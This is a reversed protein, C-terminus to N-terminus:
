QGGEKPESILSLDPKVRQEDTWERRAARTRTAAVSLDDSATRAKFLVREVAGKSTRLKKAIVNLSEGAAAMHLIRERESPLLTPKRGISKGRAKAAAQGARSREVILDREFAAVAGMIAFLLKGGSTTTDLEPQSSLVLDVGARECRAAIDLLQPLSRALRDLKYAILVEIAGKDVEHLLLELQPRRIRTGSVGSDEFWDVQATPWRKAIFEQLAIRQSEVSQEATSCRLYAGIRM